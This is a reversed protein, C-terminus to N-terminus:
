WGGGGWPVKVSGEGSPVQKEVGSLLTASAGPCVDVQLFAQPHSGQGKRLVPCHLPRQAHCLFKRGSIKLNNELIQDFIGASAGFPPHQQPWPPGPPQSASYSAAGILLPPSKRDQAQDPGNGAEGTPGSHPPLASAHFASGPRGQKTIRPAPIDCARSTGSHNQPGM